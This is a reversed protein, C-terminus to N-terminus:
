CRRRPTRRRRRQDAHEPRQRIEAASLARNYVRVEDITGAFYDVNAGNFIYAGLRCRLRKHAAIRRRRANGLQAGNLYARLSTGDYTVAVHQWSGAPVTGFTIDTTGTWFTLAGSALYLDRNSGVTM